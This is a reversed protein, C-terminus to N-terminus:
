SVLSSCGPHKDGLGDDLCLRPGNKAKVYGSRGTRRVSCYRDWKDNCDGLHRCLRVNQTIHASMRNQEELTGLTTSYKHLRRAQAHNGEADTLKKKFTIAMSAASQKNQGM